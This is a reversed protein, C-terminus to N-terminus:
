KMKPPGLTYAYLDKRNGSEKGDGTNFDNWHFLSKIHDHGQLLHLAGHEFLFLLPRTFGSWLQIEDSM